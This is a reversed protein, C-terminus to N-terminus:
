PAGDREWRELANAPPPRGGCLGCKRDYCYGRADAERAKVRRQHIEGVSSLPAEGMQKLAWWLWLAVCLVLATRPHEVRVDFLYGGLRVAAVLLALKGTPVIAVLSKEAFREFREAWRAVERHRTRTNKLRDNDKTDM